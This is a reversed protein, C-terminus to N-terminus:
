NEGVSSSGTLDTASDETITAGADSVITLSGFDLTNGTADGLTIAATNGANDATLGATGTVSLDANTDDTINGAATLTLSAASSTGSLQLESDERITVAGGVFTLSGFNTTDGADEGLTIPNAGAAFRANNTVSLSSGVVDTIAGGATVVLSSASVTGLRVGSADTLQVAGATINVTGAFENGANTLALANSGVSFTATGSVALAATQTVANGTVSLSQAATAANFQVTEAAVSLTGSGINIAGSFTVTDTGGQGDLTLNAQFGSGLSAIAITDNGTGGANLTLTGTPNTFTIAPSQGSDVGTRGATGSDSVAVTEAATSFNVTTATVNLSSDVTEVVDFSITSNGTLTVSGTDGDTVGFVQSAFTDGSLRLTDSGAGGNFQVARSFDDGSFDLSVLDDGGGTNLVISGTFATLPVTVTDTGSGTAGAISTVLIRGPDQVQVASGVLRVTLQDTTTTNVDTVTLNNASVVLSTDPQAISVTATRALSNDAGDNVM